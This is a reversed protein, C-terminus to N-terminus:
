ASGRLEFKVTINISPNSHKMDSLAEIAKKSEVIELIRKKEKMEFVQRADKHVHPSKLVTIFTRDVPLPIPGSFMLGLKRLTDSMKKVTEDLIKTDYSKVIVKIKRAGGKTRVEETPKRFLARSDRFPKSDQTDKANGPGSPKTLDGSKKNINM